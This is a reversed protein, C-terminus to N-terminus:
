SRDRAYLNQTRYNGFRVDGYECGARTILEIALTALDTATTIAAPAQVM